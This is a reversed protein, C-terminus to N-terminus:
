RIIPSDFPAQQELTARMEAKHLSEITGDQSELYNDSIEETATM